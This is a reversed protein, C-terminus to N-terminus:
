DIRKNQKQARFAKWFYQPQTCLVTCLTSFLNKNLSSIQM